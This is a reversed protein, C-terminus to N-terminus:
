LRHGEDGTMIREYRGKIRKELPRVLDPDCGPMLQPTLEVVSVRSGLADYVCAMELGIIGGGVVLLRKPLSDLELAGTSDIVRPDQPMFPLRVPESGVAIICQEFGIIETGGAGTVEVTHTGVFRGSGQVVEVRRQKALM